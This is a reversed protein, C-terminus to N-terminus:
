SSNMWVSAEILGPLEPPGSRSTPTGHDTDVGRDKGLASARDSDTERDRDVQGLRHERLEALAAGHSPPPESHGERRKGRFYVLCKPTGSCRPATTSPRTGPEGASRAPMRLPSTMTASPLVGIVPGASRVSQVGPFSDSGGANAGGFCAFWIGGHRHGAAPSDATSSAVAAHGVRARPINVPRLFKAQCGPADRM